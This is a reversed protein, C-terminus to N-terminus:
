DGGNESPPAAPPDASKGFPFLRFADNDAGPPPPPYTGARESLPIRRPLRGDGSPPVAPFNETSEDAKGAGDTPLAYRPSRPTEAPDAPFSGGRLFGASEEPTTPFSGGGPHSGSPEAPTAPTSPGSRFLSSAEDSSRFGGGRPLFGAPEAPGTPFSAGGRLFGSTEDQDATSPGHGGAPDPTENRVALFSDTIDWPPIGSRQTVGAPGADASRGGMRGADPSGTSARGAGAPGAGAPGADTPGAGAPGTSAPGAGARDTGMPRTGTQGPRAWRTDLPTVSAPGAGEPAASGGPAASGAGPGASPRALGAGPPVTGAGPPVTGAGPSVIGAGSPVSGASPGASSPPGQADAARGGGLFGFRSPSQPAEAPRAGSLFGSGAGPEATGSLSDTTSPSWTNRPRDAEQPGDDPQSTVPPYPAASRPGGPWAEEAIADWTPVAPRAPQRQPLAVGGLPSPPAQGWPLESDPQPAPDWPPSGSVQPARVPNARHSGQARRGAARGSDAAEAAPEAGSSAAPAPFASHPIAGSGSGRLRATPDEQIPAWPPAGTPAPSGAAAGGAAAAGSAMGGSAMGGSAMGGPALGSPVSDASALDPSDGGPVAGSLDAGPALPAPLFGVPEVQPQSTARAPSGPVHGDQAGGPVPRWTGPLGAGTFGGSPGAASMTAGPVGAGAMGAGPVAAGSTGPGAIPSSGPPWATNGALAAGGAIATDGTAASATGDAPDPGRTRRAPVQTAARVEALRASRARRRRWTTFGLICGLLVLFVAVAIGADTILSHGLNKRIVTSHVAPASPAQAAAVGASAAASPVAETLKSAAMLAAAADVTGYGSGDSRGGRPRYVTSTTLVQRVQAPTLKPFQAKILAVIGAVVASAASTSDVQAYGTLGNAATVGDGAATLTVYPQHSSYPAKIFSENFAGVSIVGPYAAPYNVADTGSGDDGAPAVLVVHRALAYAVAAREAPSGGSGAAGSTTVPDLPLDIVAVHQRVAYRIGRAIANPLGAAIAPSFLLPDNSELTVRVSLIRAAPAVGVIGYADGSGHGHGAIISAMATGHVGWYPGGPTRGSNTYDPGTIVSGTLDAQKPDVGTDLLAVTVGAGKTSRWARTVHLTRLWWEQSRISDALAPSSAMALFALVLGAAV